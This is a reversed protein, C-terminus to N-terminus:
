KESKQAAHRDTHSLFNLLIEQNESFEDVTQWWATTVGCMCVWVVKLVSISIDSSTCSTKLIWKEGYPGIICM